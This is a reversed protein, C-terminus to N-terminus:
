EEAAVEDSPLASANVTVAIGSLKEDASEEEDLTQKLLELAEDQGLAEAWACLTGYTAIEYHEVKQAASILLADLVEPEADEEMISQGEAVLGEMAECKKARAAHGLLEFVQELREIQAETEELHMEIAARLEDNAAAKAMKPLANVLQREASLVDRLEEVFADELSKLPM